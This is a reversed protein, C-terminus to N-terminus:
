TVKKSEIRQAVRQFAQLQNGCESQTAIAVEYQVKM